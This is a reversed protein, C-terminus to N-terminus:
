AAFASQTRFGGCKRCRVDLMLDVIPLHEMDHDCGDAFPRPAKRMEDRALQIAGARAVAEDM